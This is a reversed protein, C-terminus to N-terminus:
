EAWRIYPFKRLFFCILRDSVISALLLTLIMTGTTIWWVWGSHRIDSPILLGAAVMIMIFSFTLPIITHIFSYIWLSFVITPPLEKVSDFLEAVANNCDEVWIADDGSVLVRGKALGCNRLDIDVAGKGAVEMLLQLSDIRPQAALYEILQERDTIIEQQMEHKEALLNNSSGVIAQWTFEGRGGVTSWLSDLFNRNLVCAPLRSKRTETNIM